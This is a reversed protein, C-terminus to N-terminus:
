AGGTSGVAEREAVKLDHEVMMGVLEDFTVTPRWGLKAESKRYDGHLLNVEAPRFFERDVRVLVKGTAKDRGVEEVGEGSWEVDVAQFAAEVFERVTHPEGTAIVYDDPQDQQLIRHM